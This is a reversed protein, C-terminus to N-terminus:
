TRRFVLKQLSFNAPAVLVFVVFSLTFAGIGAALFYGQGINIGMFMFLNMLYLAPPVFGFSFPKDVPEYKIRTLKRFVLVMILTTVAWAIFNSLPVGYYFGGGEWIWYGQVHFAVPEM